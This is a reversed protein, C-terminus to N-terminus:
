RSVAFGYDTSSNGLNDVVVYFDANRYAVWTLVCTSFRCTTQAILNDNYDYLGVHLSSSGDGKVAVAGQQGGAMSINSYTMHAGPTLVDHDSVTNEAHMAASGALLSAFVAATAFSRIKM